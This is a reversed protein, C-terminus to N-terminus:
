DLAVIYCASIYNKLEGEEHWMASPLSADAAGSVDSRSGGMCFIKRVVAVKRQMAQLLIYREQSEVEPV